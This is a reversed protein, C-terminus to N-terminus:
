PNFKRIDAIRVGLTRQCIADLQQESGEFHITRHTHAITEGSSLERAPSSIELEYFQGM